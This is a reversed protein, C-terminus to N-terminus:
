VNHEISKIGAMRIAGMCIRCPRSPLENGSNGVRAIVIKHIDRDKRAKIIAAIEAHLTHAKDNGSRSACEYQYPHTKYYNNPAESIVRNKKDLCVAYVRQMVKGSATKDPPIERAKQNAYELANKLKFM